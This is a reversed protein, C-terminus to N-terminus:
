EKEYEIWWSAVSSKRAGWQKLCDSLTNCDWFQTAYADGKFLVYICHIKRNEAM